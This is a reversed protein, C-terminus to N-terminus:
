KNTYTKHITIIVTYWQECIAKVRYALFIGNEMIVYVCVCCMFVLIIETYVYLHIYVTLLFGNSHRTVMTFQQVLVLFTEQLHKAGEKEKERGGKRKRERGEKRERERESGEKRERERERERGEEGEGEGTGWTHAVVTYLLFMM